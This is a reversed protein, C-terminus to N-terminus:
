LRAYTRFEDRDRPLGWAEIIEIFNVWQWTKTDLDALVQVTQRQAKTLEAFSPARAAPSQAPGFAMQLAAATMPFAAIESTRALGDLVHSLTGSPPDIMAALTRAAYGRLDGECYAVQLTGQEPPSAAATALEGIVDQDTSGIRALAIAAAWRLLPDEGALQERLLPAAEHDALLGLAVLANAAIPAVTEAALLSRLAPISTAAEEPFWALLYAGSARLGPDDQVLLERFVSTGARVADYAALEAEAFMLNDRFDMLSRRWERSRREAEDAAEAVWADLKREEEAPDAARMRDVEARWGAIDVGAPLFSEDFGIAIGVLLYTLDGRDPTAPDALLALLFPVAPATAEYRSGQHFINGYLDGLAREREAPSGRLGRLQGPVDAASGYAHRLRAWDIDDLGALPDNM